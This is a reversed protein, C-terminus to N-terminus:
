KKKEQDICKCSIVKFDEKNEKRFDISAVLIAAMMDDDVETGDEMTVIEKVDLARIHNIGTLVLTIVALVVFVVLICLLCLLAADGFNEIAWLPQKTPTEASSGTSSFALAILNILNM